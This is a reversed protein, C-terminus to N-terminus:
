RVNDILAQLQEAMRSDLHSLVEVERAAEVRNRQGLYALGLAFHALALDPKLGVAEKLEAIAEGYRGAKNLTTGLKGRTYPDKPQLSLAKKLASIADDPQGLFGYATGLGSYAPAYSPNVAIAKKFYVAATANDELKGYGSGIATLTEFDSPNQAIVQKWERIKAEVFARDQGYVISPAVALYIIALATKISLIPM